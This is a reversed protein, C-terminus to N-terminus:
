VGHLVTHKHARVLALEDVNLWFTRDPKPEYLKPMFEGIQLFELCTKPAEFVVVGDKEFEIYEYPGASGASVPCVLHVRHLLKALITKM